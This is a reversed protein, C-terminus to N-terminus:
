APVIQMLASPQLGPQAPWRDGRRHDDATRQCHGRRDADARYPRDPWRRWPCTTPDARVSACSLGAAGPGSVLLTPRVTYIGPSPTAHRVTRFGTMTERVIGTAENTVTVTVGPSGGTGPRLRHRQADRQWRPSRPRRSGLFPAVVAARETQILAPEISCESLQGMFGPVIM